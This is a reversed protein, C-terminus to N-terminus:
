TKKELVKINEFELNMEVVIIFKKFREDIKIYDKRTCVLQLKLQKSESIM